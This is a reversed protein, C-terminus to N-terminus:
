HQTVEPRYGDMLTRANRNGVKGFRPDDTPDNTDTAFCHFVGRPGFMEKFKPDKPYDVNEPEEEANLHYLNGLSEDFGHVTALMDNRDGLRNKGFQGTTNAWRSSCPAENQVGSRPAQIAYAETTINPPPCFSPM